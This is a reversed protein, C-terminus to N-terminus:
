ICCAAFMSLFVVSNHLPLACRHAMIIIIQVCASLFFYVHLMTTSEWKRQDFDDLHISITDLGVIISAECM